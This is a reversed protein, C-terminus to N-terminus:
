PGPSQDHGRLLALISESSMSKLLSVDEPTTAVLVLRRHPKMEIHDYDEPSAWQCRLCDAVNRVKQNICGQCRQEKGTNCSACLIQFASVGQETYESNGAVHYPVRHDCQLLRRPLIQRCIACQNGARDKMSERENRTLVLRGQLGEIYADVDFTYHIDDGVKTQSLQIGFDKLTSIVKTHSKYKSRIQATTVFGRSLVM